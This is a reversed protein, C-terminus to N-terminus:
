DRILYKTDNLKSLRAIKQKADKDNPNPLKLNMIYTEFNQEDIDEIVEGKIEYGCKENFHM